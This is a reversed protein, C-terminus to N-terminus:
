VYLIEELKRQSGQRKMFVVCHLGARIQEKVIPLSWQPAHLLILSELRGLADQASNAHLTTMSGDHGTNMAQIMPVVEAGRCEGVILRDPRMRLANVVLDSMSIEGLGEANKPRTELRVVHPKQIQLEAADELTIMREEDPILGALINLLTTKGAGSNGAVLINKRSAVAGCLDEAQLENITGVRVLDELKKYIPKFRRITLVPGGMSLPPLVVNVRSGDHLRVDCMPSSMDVRRGVRGVMREIITRLQTESQFVVDSKEIVGNIEVFVADLGNVMIENLSKDRMLTELPGLGTVQDRIRQRLASLLAPPGSDIHSELLVSHLAQDIEVEIDKEVLSSKTWLRDSVKKELDQWNIMSLEAPSSSLPEKLWLKVSVALKEIARSLPAHPNLQQVSLGENESKTLTAPDFPLHGLFSGLAEKMTELGLGDPIGQNWLVWRIQNRNLGAAMLKGMLQNAHHVDDITPSVGILCRVISFDCRDSFQSFSDPRFVFIPDGGLANMFSQTIVRDGMRTPRSPFFAVQSKSLSM